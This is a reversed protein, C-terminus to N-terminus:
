SGETCNAGTFGADCTCNFGGDINVCTSNASCTHARPSGDTINCEDIDVVFLNTRNRCM